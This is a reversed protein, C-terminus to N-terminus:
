IGPLMFGLRLSGDPGSTACLNGGHIEFVRRAAPLALRGLGVARYYFPEFLRTLDLNHVKLGPGDLYGFIAPPLGRSRCGLVMTVCGGPPERQLVLELLRVLATRLMDSDARIRPLPGPLELRLAVGLREAAPALQDLAEQLVPELALELGYLGQPDGYERLEDIFGNLRDLGTRIAAGYRSADSNATRAEFADLSASVGFSFNRLEHV